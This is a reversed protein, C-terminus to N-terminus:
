DRTFMRNVLGFSPIGLMHRVYVTRRLGDHIGIPRGTAITIRPAPRSERITKFLRFDQTYFFHPGEDGHTKLMQEYCDLALTPRVVLCATDVHGWDLGEVPIGPPPWVRRECLIPMLLLDPHDAEALAAAIRALAHRSFYNDDDWFVCYDAVGERIMHRLGEIRPSVGFNNARRETHGYSIRSDRARAEDVLSGMNENPGDHVVILRWGPHTQSAMRPLLRKLYKTREYTPVIIGFNM